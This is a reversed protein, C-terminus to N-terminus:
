FELELFLSSQINEETVAEGKIVEQQSNLLQFNLVWYGTMTLSLNGHYFNDVASLTLDTNNPSSHNGMGPMRPDLTITYGAVVPFSMMNEMKYLGVTLDNNGIRPQLPEKISVVYRMNDAGMFASVNKKDNQFVSITETVTYSQNEIEYDLKLTWGSADTNTMQFVIFGEFVTSKGLAKAIQSKPCSHQMTPMQMVPMWTIQANTVYQNNVTNKIRLSINNHGTYFKGSPTYLEILHADNVIEKALLLDEIENVPQNDSDDSTSCSFVTLLLACILIYLTKM